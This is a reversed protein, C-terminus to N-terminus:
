RCVRGSEILNDSEGVPVHRLIAFVQMCIQGVSANFTDANVAAVAASGPYWHTGTSLTVEPKVVECVVGTATIESGKYMGVATGEAAVTFTVRGGSQVGLSTRAYTCHGSLNSDPSPAVTLAISGLVDTVVGGDYSSASAPSVLAGSAALAAVPVVLLRAFRM